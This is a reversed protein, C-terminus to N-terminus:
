FQVRYGVAANFNTYDSRLEVAGDAFISGSGVPVSIGAGLEVGFAGLEASEIGARTAYGTFGTSTTSQRDGLDYKVLARAEFGCARNLMRQGVVAAYRAGAGATVTDLSQKGVNLAADAGSESYSDVATHRYAINLVPSLASLNGLEFERSVEYMLGFATGDTDGDTSYSMASRKYDAEMTGATGIFAHSWKGSEYRAFASVYTTDMDGKLYDPGDSQLDGHMATLALGLTLKDNVQMGAGLTGGWSTLTYGAATSDDNQEARNGEANVWAFFRAPAESSVLGSKEDVFTVTGADNGAVSRNRIARLQREVDGSLAMGLAATSAGAVAAMDRDTATGADVANLIGALAGEPADKQPRSNLFVDTMLAVGAKGNHTTPKVQEAVYTETGLITLTLVTGAENWALTYEKRNDESRVRETESSGNFTLAGEFEKELTVLKLTDGADKNSLVEDTLQVNLTTAGELSGAELRSGAHAFSLGQLSVSDAELYAAADASGLTLIGNVVLADATSTGKQLTLSGPAETTGVGDATLSELVTEGPMSRRMPRAGLYVTSQSNGLATIKLEASQKTSGTYVTGKWENADLAVGNDLKVEGSLEQGQMTYSGEGRLTVDAASTDLQSANLNVDNGIEITSAATSKVYDDATNRLDTNLVLTGGNLSIATAETDKSNVFVTANSEESYTITDGGAVHFVTGVGSGYAHLTGDDEFNFTANEDGVLKWTAGNDTITGGEAITIDWCAAEFGSNTSNPTTSSGIFYGTVNRVETSSEFNEVDVTIQGALEVTGSDASEITGGLTTNGNLSLTANDAVTITGKTTLNGEFASSSNEGISLSDVQVNGGMTGGETLELEVQGIIDGSWNSCDGNLTLKSGENLTLSGSGMLASDIVHVGDALTHNFSGLDISSLTNGLSSLELATAAGTLKVTGNWDSGLGVGTNLANADAGLTYCGKGRLTVDAASTDLQSANLNVDNGIEITSAATSKVYDDATNRLDTNLVLTGGNLSIATAKTDKSNVFDAANDSDYTITDSQAVHFVSEVSSGYAHLTGDTEVFDFDADADGVLQWTVGNDTISGGEAITIDWCAAKFGSQTSNPKTAKGIFYGTVEEVADGPKFTTTDLTITGGLVLSSGSGLTIKGGISSVGGISLNAGDAVSSEGTTTLGKSVATSGGAIKLTGVSLSGLTNSGSLTLEKDELSVSGTSNLSAAVEQDRAALTHSANGLEVKSGRVGLKDLALETTNGTTNVTGRWGTGVNVGEGLANARDELTYSGSGSLTVKAASADLQRANLTVDNGIEITSAATSKVYDDATNRLDTNLVLTGGDLQIGTAAEGESNTFHTLTSDSYTITDGQDVHFITDVSSGYAHLTGDSEFDFTADDDGKLKWTADTGDITGGEAITIDWCAAEFGSKTTNPTTSNGIFYGTVEKVADSPKFTTTDVTISGQLNLTGSNTIKGGLTTNGGLTLTVGSNVTTTGNLETNKWSTTDLNSSVTTDGATKVTGSWASGVSVGSGLSLETGTIEYAGNGSLEVSGGSEVSLQNSKLTKNSLIEVSSDATKAIIGQGKVLEKGLKLSGGELSFKTDETTLAAVDTGYNTTGNKVYYVSVDETGALILVGDEYKAATTGVKWTATGTASGGTLVTYTTDITKYGNDGASYRERSGATFATSDVTITGGLVVSGNNELLGNLKTNGGLTLTAGNNVTTTGNLETNNWGTTNVAGSVATAGTTKVTGSWESDSIMMGTGLSLDTGDIVYSGTGCLTITKDDTATLANQNLSTNITVTSAAGDVTTIEPILSSIDTNVVLNGGCLLIKNTDNSELVTSLDVNGSSVRYTSKDTTTVTVDGANYTATNGGVKWTASGAVTGTGTIVGLYTTTTVEYGNYAVDDFSSATSHTFNAANLNITGGLTLSGSNNIKGGLNLVTSSNLKIYNNGEIAIEGNATLSGYVTTQSSSTNAFTIKGNVTVDAESYKYDGNSARFDTNSFVIDRNSVMKAGIVCNALTLANNGKGVNLSGDRYIALGYLRNKKSTDTHAIEVGDAITAKAEGNEANGDGVYVRFTLLDDEFSSNIALDGSTLTLYCNTQVMYHGIKSTLFSTTLDKHGAGYMKINHVKIGDLTVGKLLDYLTNTAYVSPREIITMSGGDEVAFEGVRYNFISSGPYKDGYPGVLLKNGSAVTVTDAYFNVGAKTAYLVDNSTSTQVKNYTEDSSLAHTGNLTLDAAMAPASIAALTATALTTTVVAPSLLAVVALLARRLATPLHLKM